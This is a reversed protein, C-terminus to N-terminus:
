TEGRRKQGLLPKQWDLLLTILRWNPEAQNAHLPSVSSTFRFNVEMIDSVLFNTWMESDKNEQRSVSFLQIQETNFM